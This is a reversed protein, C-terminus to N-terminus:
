PRFCLRIAAFPSRATYTVSTAHRDAVYPWSEIAKPFRSIRICMFGPVGRAVYTPGLMCFIRFFFLCACSAISAFLTEDSRQCQFETPIEPSHKASLDPQRAPIFSWVRGGIGLYLMQAFRPDPAPPFPHPCPWERQHHLSAHHSRNTHM